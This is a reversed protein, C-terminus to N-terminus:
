LASTRRSTLKSRAASHALYGVRVADAAEHTAEPRFYELARRREVLGTRHLVRDFLSGGFV